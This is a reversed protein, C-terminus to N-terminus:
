ELKKKADEAVEVKTSGIDKFEVTTTRNIQRENNNFSIKGQTNVEYKVLAGDKIWFKVTGKPETIQPANNNGGRGGFTMLSKAGEETLAGSFLGDGEDKLDGAKDVLGEAEVAPAKFNQLRRALGAAPDRRGQGGAQNGQFESGAKWGDATKVAVKGAKLVAESSNEGQTSKIWVFGEKELKGETPGPQFRNQGGGGGGESKPTSVWSYGSAEQLKKAAAKVDTKADPNSAAVLSAALGAIGIWAMRKM